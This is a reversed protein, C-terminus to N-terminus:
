KKKGKIKITKIEAIIAEEPLSLLIEDTVQVGKKIVAENENVPGLEIQQKILSGNDKKYVWTTDNETHLCELPIYIVDKLEQVLFENSTTMAPLLTTDKENVKIRVEFVKSDSNRRQEGINAVSVVEGSLKKKPMADLSIKVKQGKKVKQIDVENVYTISEMKSLDPLEAVTPDWFSITSGVVKRRGNWERSYIVMGQAPALITFANFTEMMSALNQKEKTLDAGAITLKAIAQKVKTKYNKLSQEYARETKEYEIEVKRIVSPPEYISQEKDLRREELNFKLNELEDRASSLTLTSDLQAQLYQQELKQIQLEIEKIKTMIESKDLEAVFDGEKVITGEPILRSIKMQSVGLNRVNTPGRVEISSKSELEGTSTVLISFKGKIPKVFIDDNEEKGYNMYVIIIILALVALSVISIIKKNM